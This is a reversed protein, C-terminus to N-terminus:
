LVRLLNYIYKIIYLYIILNYKDKPNSRWSHENLGLYPYIYLKDLNFVKQIWLYSLYKPFKFMGKESEVMQWGTM